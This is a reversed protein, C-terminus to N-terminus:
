LYISILQNMRGNSQTKSYIRLIQSVPIWTMLDLDLDLDLYLDLDLELVLRLVLRWLGLVPGSVSRM